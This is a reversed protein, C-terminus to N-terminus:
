SNRRRAPMLPQQAAAFEASVRMINIFRTDITLPAAQAALQGVIFPLQIAVLCFAEGAIPVPMGPNLKLSHVAYYQGIELDDPAVLCGPQSSGLDFDNM